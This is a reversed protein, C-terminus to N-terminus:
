ESDESSEEKSDVDENGLEDVPFEGEVQEADDTSEIEQVPVLVRLEEPCEGEWNDCAEYLARKWRLTM